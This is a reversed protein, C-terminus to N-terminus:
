TDRERRRFLLRVTERRCSLGVEEKQWQQQENLVFARPTGCFRQGFQETRIRLLHSGCHPLCCRHMKYKAKICHFVRRNILFIDLDVVCQVHMKCQFRDSAYFSFDRLLRRRLWALSFSLISAELASVACKAPNLLLGVFSFSMPSSPFHSTGNGGKEEDKRGRRTGLTPAKLRQRCQHPESVHQDRQCAINRLPSTAMLARSSENGM